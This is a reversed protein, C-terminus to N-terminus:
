FRIANRRSLLRYGEERDGTFFADHAAEHLRDHEVEAEAYRRREREAARKAKDAEKDVGYAVGAPAVTVARKALFQAILDNDTM